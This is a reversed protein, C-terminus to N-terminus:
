AALPVPSSPESSRTSETSVHSRAVSLMSRSWRDVIDAFAAEDGARLRSLLELDAPTADRPAPLTLDAAGARSEDMVGGLAVRLARGRRRLPKEPKPSLVPPLM